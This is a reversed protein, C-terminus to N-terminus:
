NLPLLIDTIAQHVPVDPFFKVRELMLPASRAQQQSQALWDRCLYNIADTLGADDGVYRLVAFNGGPILGDEVGFDNEEVRGPYECCIDMQFADPACTAPDAYLLNFTRALQPPLREKERWAIIRGISAGLKAPDGKHSVVAVPIDALVQQEVQYQQEMQQKSKTQM